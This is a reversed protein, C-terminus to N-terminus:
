KKSKAKKRAEDAEELITKVSNKLTEAANRGEALIKECEEKDVDKLAKFGGDKAALEAVSPSMAIATKLNRLGIKPNAKVTDKAVGWATPANIRNNVFRVLANAAVEFTYDRASALELSNGQGQLNYVLLKRQGTFDLIIQAGANTAQLSEAKKSAEGVQIHNVFARLTHTDFPTLGLEKVTADV